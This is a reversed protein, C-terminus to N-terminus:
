DAAPAARLWTVAEEFDHFVGYDIGRLALHASLMRGLGYHHAREVVAACRPGLPPKRAVLADALRLIEDQTRSETSGRLDILLACSEPCEAAQLADSLVALFEDLSYRGKMVVVKEQSLNLVFDWYIGSRLKKIPRAFQRRGMPNREKVTGGLEEVLSVFQNAFTEGGDEFKREDLIFVAEYAKM